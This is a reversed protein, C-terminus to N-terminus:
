RSMRKCFSNEGMFEKKRDEQPLSILCNMEKQARVADRQSEVLQRVAERNSESIERLAQQNARSIEQLYQKFEQEAARADMLHTWQVFAMIGFGIALLIMIFEATKKGNFSFSGIPTTVNVQSPDGNGNAM